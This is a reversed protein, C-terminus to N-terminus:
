YKFYLFYVCSCYITQMVFTNKCYWSALEWFPMTLIPSVRTFTRTDGV